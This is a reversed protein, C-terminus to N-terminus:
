VDHNLPNRYRWMACGMHKSINTGRPKLTWQEPRLTFRKCVRQHEFHIHPDMVCKPKQPWVFLVHSTVIEVGLLHWSVDLDFLILIPLFDCLSSGYQEEYDASLILIVPFLHRTVGDGCTIEFGCESVKHM